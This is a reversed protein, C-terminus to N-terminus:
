YTSLMVQLKVVPATAHNTYLEIYGPAEDTFTVRPAGPPYDLTLTYRPVSSGANGNSELKVVLDKPDAKVETLRLGDAPADRPIVTLVVQRGEQSAFQGMTIASRNEIWRPGLIRFPGRRQGTVLASVVFPEGGKPDSLDTHLRVPNSFVGVPVDPSITTKIWYGSLARNEELVSQDTIAEVEVQFQPNESEIKTIAFQETLPSLVKTFLQTPGSELLEDVPWIRDPHTIVVPVVAGNIQFFIAENEPDNTLIEAGKGFEEAQAVPEWALHVTATGGPPIEEQDLSGVTCQCTKKGTKLVLPADGENRIVFDHSGKQGVATRGFNFETEDAVAKPWPGSKSVVPKEQPPKPDPKNGGGVKLPNDRVIWVVAMTTLGLALLCVVVARIRM